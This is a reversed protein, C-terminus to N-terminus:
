DGGGRRRGPTCLPVCVVRGRVAGGEGWSGLCTGPGRPASEASTEQSLSAGGPMCPASPLLTPADRHGAARRRGSLLGAGRAGMRPARGGAAGKHEAESEAESGFLDEMDAMAARDAAKAQGVRAQKVAPAWRVRCHRLSRCM